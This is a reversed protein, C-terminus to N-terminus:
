REQSHVGRRDTASSTARNASLKTTKDLEEGQKRFNKKLQDYKMRLDEEGGAGRHRSTSRERSSKHQSAAGSPAAAAAPSPSLM